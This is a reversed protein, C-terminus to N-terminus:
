SLKKTFYFASINITQKLAGFSTLDRWLALVYVFSYNPWLQKGVFRKEQKNVSLLVIDM